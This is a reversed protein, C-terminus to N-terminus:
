RRLPAVAPRVDEHDAVVPTGASPAQDPHDYRPAVQRAEPDLRDVARRNGALQGPRQRFEAPLM